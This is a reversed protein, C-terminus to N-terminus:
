SDSVRNRTDGGFQGLRRCIDPAAAVAKRFHEEASVFDGDNFALYGLQRHAIAMGPDIQVAKLLNEREGATDGLRDLAVSLKYYLLAYEPMAAIAERYLEAARKPNGNALETDGQAMTIAAQTRNAKAKEEKQYLEFQEAALKTEGLTRLVKAYEFRISPDSAGLAMAKEFQERARQPDNVHAMAIGLNYRCDSQDPNVAVARELFSRAAAYNGSRNELVGNLYLVMFDHPAAVLLKKALPRALAEEDNLVLVHLYLTKASLDNPSQQVLRKALKSSEEFRRQM